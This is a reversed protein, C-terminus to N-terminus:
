QLAGLRSKLLEDRWAFDKKLRAPRSGLGFVLLKDAYAPGALEAAEVLRRRQGDVLSDIMGLEQSLKEALGDAGSANMYMRVACASIMGDANPYANQMQGLSQAFMWVRLGFNAGIEIAEAVPQMERLRPLEDLMFLIPLMKDRDTDTPTHRALMRIHQAILVRLVSLYAEIENAKLCVYITPHKGDVGARLGAPNWDSRDTVRAVPADGWGHFSSQVTALVDARTRENMERLSTAARVMPPVDVAAKLRGLMEEFARGGYVIDLLKEMKRDQPSLAHCISAIAATVVEKAQADWFTSGERAASPVVMMDALFRAEQWLRDADDSVFTLPNYHHSHQPETPAFRYVPGVNEARWRSTANYLQGNNVDLVVAPARWTLLNPIAHCQSKGSGPPAITILSGSGSYTLRDGADFSGLRLAHGGRDAFVSGSVDGPRLWAGGGQSFRSMTSDALARVEAKAQPDSRLQQLRRLIDSITSEVGLQTETVAVALATNADGEIGFWTADNIVGKGDGYALAARWARFDHNRGEAESNLIEAIRLFERERASMGALNRSVKLYLHRAESPGWEHFHAASITASGEEFLRDIAAVRQAHTAGLGTLWTSTEKTAETALQRPSRQSTVTSRTKEWAQKALLGIALVFTAYLGGSSLWTLGAAALALPHRRLWRPVYGLVSQPVDIGTAALARSRSMLLAGILAAAFIATEFLWAFGVIAHKDM